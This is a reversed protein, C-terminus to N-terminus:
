CSFASGTNNISYRMLNLTKGLSAPGKVENSVQNSVFIGRLRSWTSAWWRESLFGPELPQIMPVPHDGENRAVSVVSKKVSGIIKRALTKEFIMTIMEGRSREYCRRSFWLNLVSSQTAILRALLALSAYILATLKSKETYDMSQLLKQLLVPGAFAQSPTLRIESLTKLSM